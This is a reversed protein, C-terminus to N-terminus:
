LLGLSNKGEFPRTTKHFGYTNGIQSRHFFLAFFDRHQGGVVERHRPEQISRADIHNKDAIREPHHHQTVLCGQRDREVHHNMVRARHAAAGLPRQDNRVHREERELEAQFLGHPIGATQNQFASRRSHLDFTNQM